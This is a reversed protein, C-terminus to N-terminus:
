SASAPVSPIDTASPGILKAGPAYGSQRQYGVQEAYGEVISELMEILPQASLHPNKGSIYGAKERLIECSQEIQALENCLTKKSEEWTGSAVALVRDLRLAYELQAVQKQTPSIASYIQQNTTSTRTFTRTLWDGQAPDEIQALHHDFERRWVARLERLESRLRWLEMRRSADLPGLVLEQASTFIRELKGDQDIGRFAILLDLKRGVKELKSAIDATSIVHAASVAISSLATAGTILRRATGVEKLQEIVRGTALDRVSPLMRGSAGHALLEATGELLKKTAEPSASVLLEVNTGLARVTQLTLNAGDVGFRELFPKISSQFEDETANLFHAPDLSQAFTLRVLLGACSPPELDTFPEPVLAGASSRRMVERAKVVPASRLAMAIGGGVLVASGVVLGILVQDM